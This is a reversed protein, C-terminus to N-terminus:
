VQLEMRGKQLRRSAIGLLFESTGCLFVTAAAWALVAATDLSLRADQMGTGLAFSPQSLLEGAVVVKWCLGLASKAGTLFHPSASPLRLRFLTTRAPVKFVSAMQLLEPDVSEVGACVSSHMLPYAMLFASFIPVGSAPLWFMAVLILALVPTARITTLLPAIFPKFFGSLAALIGSLCGALLSLAFAIGVRRLSGLVAAWFEGTRAIGWFSAAVEGPPPLILSSGVLGSALRWLLIATCVGLFGYGLKGALKNQKQRIGGEARFAPPDGPSRM